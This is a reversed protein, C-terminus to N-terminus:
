APNKVNLESPNGTLLAERRYDYRYGEAFIFKTSTPNKKKTLEAKM